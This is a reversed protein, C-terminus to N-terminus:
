DDSSEKRLRPVNPFIGMMKEIECTLNQAVAVPDFDGQLTYLDNDCIVGHEGKDAEQYLARNPQVDAMNKDFTSHSVVFARVFCDRIDRMTLGEVFRSGRVGQDTHPQGNYPRDRRMNHDAGLQDIASLIDM